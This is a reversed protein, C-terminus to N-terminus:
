VSTVDLTLCHTQALLSVLFVLLTHRPSYQHLNICLVEFPSILRDSFPKLVKIYSGLKAVDGNEGIRDEVYEKTTKDWRGISLGLM